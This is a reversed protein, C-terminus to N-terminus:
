LVAGDTSFGKLDNGANHRDGEGEDKKEHRNPYTVKM